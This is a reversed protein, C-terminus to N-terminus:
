GGVCGHVLCLVIFIVMVLFVFNALSEAIRNSM